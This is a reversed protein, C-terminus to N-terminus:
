IQFLGSTRSSLNRYALSKWFHSSSHWNSNRYFYPKPSHYTQLIHFSSPSFTRVHSWYHPQSTTWNHRNILCQSSFNQFRLQPSLCSIRSCSTVSHSILILLHPTVLYNWSISDKLAVTKQHFFSDLSNALPQSISPSLQESPPSLHLLSKITSWLRKPNKSAESISEIDSAARSKNILKNACIFVCVESGNWYSRNWRM